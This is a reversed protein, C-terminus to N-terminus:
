NSYAFLNVILQTILQKVISADDESGDMGFNRMDLDALGALNVQEINRSTEM